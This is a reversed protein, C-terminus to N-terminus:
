SEVCVLGRYVQDSRPGAAARPARFFALAYRFRANPQWLLRQTAVHKSACAFVTTHTPTVRLRRRQRAQGDRPLGKRM